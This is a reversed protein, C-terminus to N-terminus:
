VIEDAAAEIFFDWNFLSRLVYFFYTCVHILKIKRHFMRRLFYLLIM